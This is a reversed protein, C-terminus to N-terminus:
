TINIPVVSDTATAVAADREYRMVVDRLSSQVTSTFWELAEDDTPTAEDPAVAAASAKLAAFVRVEEADSFNLTINITHTM